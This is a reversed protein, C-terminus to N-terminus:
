CHNETQCYVARLPFLRAQKPDPPNILDLIGSIYKRFAYRVHTQADKHLLITGKSGFEPLDKNKDNQTNALNYNEMFLSHSNREYM